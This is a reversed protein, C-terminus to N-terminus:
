IKEIKKRIRKKVASFISAPNKLVWLTWLAPRLIRSRKELGNKQLVARVEKGIKGSSTISGAHDRFAMVPIAVHKLPKVKFCRLLYDYDCAASFKDDAYFGVETLAARSLFVTGHGVFTLQESALLERFSVQLGRRLGLSNGDADVKVLDGYVGFFKKTDLNKLATAIRSVVSGDVYFDDSNLIAIYDGTAARMGKNIADYMNRDKESVFHALKDRYDDIIALTGDKSEGDIVIYELEAYDQALVSEITRRVFKESNYCVTIVSIKM